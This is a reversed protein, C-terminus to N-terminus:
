NLIKSKIRYKFGIQFETFDIPASYIKTSGEYSSTNQPGNRLMLETRFTLCLSLQPIIIKKIDIKSILGMGIKKALDLERSYFSRDPMAAGYWISNDESGWVFNYSVEPGLSISLYENDRLIGQINLRLSFRKSEVDYKTVWHGYPDNYGALPKYEETFNSNKNYYNTGFGIKIKKGIDHQYQLGIGLADNFRLKSSTGFSGCLEIEQSFCSIGILLFIALCILKRM